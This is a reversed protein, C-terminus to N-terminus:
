GNIKNLVLSYIVLRKERTAKLTKQKGKDQLMQIINLHRDKKIWERSTWLAEQAKMLNTFKEARIDESLRQAGNERERVQLVGVIFISIPKTYGM